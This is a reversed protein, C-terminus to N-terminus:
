DEGDKGPAMHKAVLENFKLSDAVTDLLNAATYVLELMEPTLQTENEIATHIIKMSKDMWDLQKAASEPDNEANEAEKEVREYEEKIIKVLKKRSFKM